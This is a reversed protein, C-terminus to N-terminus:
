DPVAVAQPAMERIRTTIWKIQTRTEDHHAAAQDLLERDRLARAVQGLVTWHIHVAQAKEHLLCLDHLLAIGPTPPKGHAEPATRRVSEPVAAMPETPAAKAHIRVDFREGWARIDEAHRDCQAAVTHAPYYTGRDAAQRAAVTRCTAALDREADHLERLFAGTKNM